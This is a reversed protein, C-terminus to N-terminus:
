NIVDGCWQCTRQNIPEWKGASAIYHHDCFEKLLRGNEDVWGYRLTDYTTHAGTYDKYNSWEGNCHYVVFAGNDEARKLIGNDKKGHPSVYHVKTGPSTKNSIINM